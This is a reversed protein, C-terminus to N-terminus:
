LKIGLVVGTKDYKGNRFSSVVDVRFLRFVKFGLNDIGVYLETYDKQSETYLFNAGVATQWGLRSLLPVKDLLFGTFHHQFHGEVFPGSTSYEYYPLQLFSRNYNNPNGIFTQNGNFHQFDVVEIRKKNFFTGGKIRFESHGLVGLAMYDDFVELSVKDYGTFNDNIPIAKQYIVRFAPYKTGMIYKRDPYTLYKQAFRIRVNAEVYFAQHEEFSFDQIEAIQPTNSPYDIDRKSWSYQTNVQLPQRYAYESALRVVVGNTVEQQYYAYAFNRDYLKMFHEKGWLNYASSLFPQIPNESNFQMAERGGSLYFRAFKTRNIHYFFNLRARLQEDAFSYQVKPEVYFWKLFRDDYSKRYRFNLSFMGGQVPNFQITSIPASLEFSKRKWSNRYTYGFLLDMVGFKNNKNDISDKYEKSDWIQQLSDKKIYDTSEEQTLPIPRMEEWYELSKENAGKKFVLTENNFYKNEFTPNINYDKFIGTFDGEMKFGFLGASFSITQSFLRWVDPEQIPVHVQNLWLTDLGPQKMARSTIFLETSQINWLDEVIYIIGGYTPDEKRKQIVEIKNVLLGNDDFFTGLLKYKYYTLANNAIPSIIERSYLSTNEYLNFDLESFRNFSFGNDDGSVKSSIMIEKYHDPQKYNLIAESESLYIIGTRNSDLQGGMDGIDNGLIKEPADLLKIGGKIYVNCQYEEVQERYYKRKKIAKRIVAYAPDEADATVVVGSIEFAEEELVVDLRIPENDVVLTETKQKYGVYQFIVEYTGKKLELTFDGEINSTTGNSTGKVYISAFSLPEGQADTIKGSIQAYSFTSFFLFTLALFHYRM